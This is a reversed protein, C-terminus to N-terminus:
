LNNEVILAIAEGGGICLSALGYRAKRAQLGHVLSVLIRAGSAGIPHGLAVAGGSVNVRQPDLDLEQIAAMAVAAFAENIEFLDIDAVTLGAKKLTVSIAQAPATTFWQPDHAFCGWAVVRALPRVGGGGASKGSALVLAAAGDNIKSANAATITNEPAFAPKLTPMKALDAAFPEEDRSVTRTEKGLTFTVPELEAAFAGTQWAALAKEYSKQAFQDQQERTFKFKQVCLEACVGMHKQSYPDWLGDHVLADVLPAPGMRTGERSHTLLHPAQSMSEQGGAVVFAADGLRLAQTALAVSMLGSGCVKGVTLAQTSTPLGAGLAAQRAPAQGCGATLVQGMFIQEILAPELGATQVAAKVAIAGLQTAPVSKLGGLFRGIPTRKASLISVEHFSM